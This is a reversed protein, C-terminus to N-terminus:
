RTEDEHKYYARLIAPVLEDSIGPKPVFEDAGVRLAAERYGSPEMQTLVVIGARPLAARLRPIATLGPMGPMALDIVVVQPLLAQAKALADSGEAATAVVGVQSTGHEALFRMVVTLFLPNDDVLLVSVPSM